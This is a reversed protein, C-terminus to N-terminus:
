DAIRFNFEVSTSTSDPEPEAIQLRYRGVDMDSISLRLTGKERDDFAKFRPADYLVDGSDSQVRVHYEKGPRAGEVRFVLIGYDSINRHFVKGGFTRGPSCEVTQIVPQIDPSRLGIYGPLMLLGLYSPVLLVLLTAVLVAPRLLLPAKPWLYTWISQRSSETPLNESLRAALAREVKSSTSLLETEDQLGEFEAFCHDCEMLHREFKESDGESLIGIEYGHLLKGIDIDTCESM